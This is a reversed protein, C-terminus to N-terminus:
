NVKLIGKEIQKARRENERKHSHSKYEKHKGKVKFPTYIREM